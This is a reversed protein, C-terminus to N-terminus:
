LTSTPLFTQEQQIPLSLPKAAGVPLYSSTRQMLDHSISGLFRIFELNMSTAMFNQLELYVTGGVVVGRLGLEFEVRLSWWWIMWLLRCISIGGM